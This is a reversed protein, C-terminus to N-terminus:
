DEAQIFLQLEQDIVISSNDDSNTATFAKNIQNDVQKRYRNIVSILQQPFQNLVKIKDHTSLEIFNYQNKGLTFSEIYKMNEYFIYIENIEGAEMETMNRTQKNRYKSLAGMLLTNYITDAKITPVNIVLEFSERTFVEPKLTSVLDEPKVTYLEYTKGDSKIEKGISITRLVNLLFPRVDLTVSNKVDAVDNTYEVNKSIYENLLNKTAAIVEVISSTSSTIKRQQEYSLEKFKFEGVTTDTQVSKLEQLVEDLSFEEREKAMFNLNRNQEHNGGCVVAM